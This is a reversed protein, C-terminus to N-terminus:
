KRWFALGNKKGLLWNARELAEEMSLVAIMGSIKVQDKNEEMKVLYVPDTTLFLDGHEVKGSANAAKLKANTGAHDIRCICPKGELPDFRLAKWDKFNKLDFTVRFAGDQLVTEAQIKEEERFGNGTDVFLQCNLLDKEQHRKRFEELSIGIEPISYHLVRNAGVYHEAFYTGWKHFTESMEQTIQYEELLEQM